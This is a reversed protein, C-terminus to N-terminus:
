LYFKEKIIEAAEEASLKENNIKIYNKFIKEGEGADSNLKHKTM